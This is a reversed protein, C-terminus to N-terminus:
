LSHQLSVLAMSRWWHLLTLNLSYHHLHHKVKTWRGATCYYVVTWQDYCICKLVSVVLRCACHLVYVTFVTCVSAASSHM